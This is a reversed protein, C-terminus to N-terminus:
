TSTFIHMIIKGIHYILSHPTKINLQSIYYFISYSIWFFYSFSDFASEFDHFVNCGGGIFDTRSIKTGRDVDQFLNDINGIWRFWCYFSLDCKKDIKTTELHDKLLIAQKSSEIGHINCSYILIIFTDSLVLVDICRWLM